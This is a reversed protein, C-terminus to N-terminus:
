RIWRLWPRMLQPWVQAEPWTLERLAGPPSLLVLAGIYFDVWAWKMQADATAVVLDDLKRCAELPRAIDTICAQDLKTLSGGTLEFAIYGAAGPRQCPDSEMGEEPLGHPEFDSPDTSYWVEIECVVPTGTEAAVQQAVQAVDGGTLDHMWQHWTWHKGLIHGSTVLSHYVSGVIPDFGKEVHLGCQVHDPRWRSQRFVGKGYPYAPWDASPILWWLTDEPAFRNWPRATLHVRERLSADELAAHALAYVHPFGLTIDM